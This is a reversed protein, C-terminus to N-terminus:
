ERKDKLTLFNNTLAILFLKLNKTSCYFYHQSYIFRTKLYKRKYVERSILYYIKPNGSGREFKETQRIICFFFEYKLLRKM